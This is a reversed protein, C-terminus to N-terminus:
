SSGPRWPGCAPKCRSNPPRAKKLDNTSNCRRRVGPRCPHPKFRCRGAAESGRTGKQPYVPQLRIRHGTGSAPFHPPRPRLYPLPGRHAHCHHQGRPFVGTPGGDGYTQRAEDLDAIIDAVARVRYRPGNKYVMCFTCRNHPCGVTAQVLLSHAESPPRYIPGEYYM